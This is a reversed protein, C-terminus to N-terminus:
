YVTKVVPKKEPFIEAYDSRLYEIKKLRDDVIREIKHLLSIEIPYLDPLKLKKAPTTFRIMASGLTMLSMMLM